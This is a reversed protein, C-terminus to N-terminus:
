IACLFSFQGYAKSKIPHPNKGSRIVKQPGGRPVPGAKWAHVQSHSVAFLTDRSRSVAISGIGIRGMAFKRLANFSLADVVTVESGASGAVMTIGDWHICTVASDCAALTRTSESSSMSWPVVSISGLTDGVLIFPRDGPKQAFVPFISSTIYDSSFAVLSGDEINLRFFGRQNWYAVLISSTNPDIHLSVYLSPEGAAVPSPFHVTNIITLPLTDETPLWTWAIIDGNQYGCVVLSQKVSGAILTASNPVGDSQLCPPSSWLCQTTKSDWVKVVGDNSGSFVLTGSKDWAICEVSREHKENLQCQYTKAAPRGKDMAKAATSITIFGSRFGWAVKATGGDSTIDCATVDPAFEVNPNGIGIGAGLPSLYGRLVKGTLPLSRSVVGYQLSSSLISDVSNSM